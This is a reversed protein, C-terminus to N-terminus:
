NGTEQQESPKEENGRDNSFDSHNEKGMLAQAPFVSFIDKLNDLDVATALPPM